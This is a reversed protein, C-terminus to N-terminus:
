PRADSSRVFDRLVRALHSMEECLRNTTATVKGPNLANVALGIRGILEALESSAPHPALARQRLYEARSSLGDRACAIDIRALEHESFRIKVINDRRDTLPDARRKAM